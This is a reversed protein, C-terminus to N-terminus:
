INKMTKYFIYCLNIVMKLDKFLRKYSKKFKGYVWLTVPDDGFKDLIKDWQAQWFDGSAGWFRQLHRFNKETLIQLFQIL